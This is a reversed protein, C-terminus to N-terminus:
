EGKRIRKVGMQMPVFLTVANLVVVSILCGALQMKENLTFAARAASKAYYLYVAWAEMSVTVLVLGFALLMFIMGGMSMSVSAINEYTFRPYVAGMGTALGSVSICLMLVTGASLYMLQGRVNMAANTVLVLVVILVTVPICGQFFKSWLFRRMHVPSTRIIWFAEGELSVAPYLFRGAVASLVLGSMVMNALVMIDKIFPSLGSIMNLPVSKFNYVYVLILAGIIFMQSWQGTDRFFIKIDKYLIARGPGPYIERFAGRDAATDSPQYRERNARYLLLGTTESVMLFFLSNVILVAAHLLDPSSGKLVPILLKAAWYSPLFPSDSRFKLFSDLMDEPQGTDAPALSKMVFYLMLFLMLGLGFMADRARKAPFLRTLIHALSIGIGATILVFMILCALVLGYYGAPAGYTVGYALFFPPMFTMIMWSSNMVTEFTKIRLIDHAAVPRTLLFPLDRSLYFSSIATIINSLILFGLLGFFTMSFLKESLVEGLIGIDRVFSLVRCTGYYFLLWVGAGIAMFPLQRVASRASVSNKASLFKQRILLTLM